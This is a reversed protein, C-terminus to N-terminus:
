ELKIPQIHDDLTLNGAHLTLHCNCCLIICKQIEIKLDEFTYKSNNIMADIKEIKYEPKLHHFALCCSTSETCITCKTKLNLIYQKKKSPKIKGKFHHKRHCNACLLICKNIEKIITDIKYGGNVMTSVESKKDTLNVHHFNLCEPRNESCNTCKKNSKYDEIFQKARSIALTKHKQQYIKIKDKNQDRWKNNLQIHRKKNKEYYNKSKELIQVKHVKYYKEWYIKRNYKKKM